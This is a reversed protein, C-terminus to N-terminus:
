SKAVFQYYRSLVTIKWFNNDHEKSYAARKEKEVRNPFRWDIDNM